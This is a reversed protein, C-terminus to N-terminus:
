KGANEDGTTELLRIQLITFTAQHMVVLHRRLHILGKNDFSELAHTLGQLDSGLEAEFCNIATKMDEINRM